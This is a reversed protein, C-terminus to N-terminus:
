PAGVAVTHTVTDKRTPTVVRVTITSYGTSQSVETARQYEPFGPVSDEAGAYRSSLSMYQPDNQIETLRDAALQNATARHDEQGVDRIFRDTISAQVGLIAFGLLVMAVLVEMLTFGARNSM